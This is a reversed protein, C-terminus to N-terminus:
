KKFRIFIATHGEWPLPDEISIGEPINEVIIYNYVTDKTTYIRLNESVNETMIPDNETVSDANDWGLIFETGGILKKWNEKM